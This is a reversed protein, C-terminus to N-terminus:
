NKTNDSNINNNFDLARKIMAWIEERTCPDHPRSGDSIGSEALWEPIGEKVAWASMKNKEIEMQKKVAKRFDNMDMKYLALWHDCDAHNSGYGREHAEHHSEIVGWQLPDLDYLKCLYACLEVAEKFVINFYNENTLDDECIEFGIHTNNDSGIPGSGAHWGRHDWPLTQCTGITGDPMYGVFAHVCKKIGPKNWHKSSFNNGIDVYRNINPNNAGTSHVTIGKPKIKRRRLYCDNKTLWHTVLNM